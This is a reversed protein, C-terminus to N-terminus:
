HQRVVPKWGRGDSSVVYGLDYTAGAEVEFELLEAQRSSLTKTRTTRNRSGGSSTTFSQHLNVRMTHHGPLLHIKMTGMAAAQCPVNKPQGDLENVSVGSVSTCEIVAVESLPRKPGPYEHYDRGFGSLM